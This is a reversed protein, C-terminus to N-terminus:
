STKSNLENKAAYALLSAVISTLALALLSTNFDPSIQKILGIIYPGAFGGLNGVSNIFAIGGAQAQISLNNRPLAWFPGVAGWIGAAAVCLAVLKLWPLPALAAMTLSLFTLLCAAVLHLRRENKKDSSRAILLMGLAQFLAPIASILSVQIDNKVFSKIIQPLWLQFGYMSITLSFYILAFQWVRPTKLAALKSEKTEGTSNQESALLTTLSAKEDKDLWSAQEPKDPILLPVLFGLIIAPAGTAIFLGKWGAIGMFGNMSLTHAALASGLLGAAPIATMFRAVATGYQARPFWFTLYLLMGPFFGAEAAGLIFRMIYFGVPEHVVCMLVTVLGWLVMILGIWRRPGFKQIVFNSPIGFICYGLFFIGAGFGFSQDSFKLDQNMQLAAFSLNIRDLYSIIYLVFLFPLLRVSIKTLVRDMDTDLKATMKLRQNATGNGM